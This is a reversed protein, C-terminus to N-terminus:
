DASRYEAPTVATQISPKPRTFERLVRAGARLAADTEFQERTGGYCTSYGIRRFHRAFSRQDVVDAAVAVEAVHQLEHALIAVLRPRSLLCDIQVRLYRANPNASLWATRGELDSTAFHECTVHVIVDSADITRVIATLLPSRRATQDLVTQLYADSRIHTYTSFALAFAALTVM